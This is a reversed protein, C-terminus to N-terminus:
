KNDNYRDKYILKISEFDNLVSLNLSIIENEQTFEIVDNTTLSIAEMVSFRIPINVQLNHMPIAKFYSTGFHGSTNVFQILSYSDDEGTSFTVEVMPSLDKGFCKVKSLSRIVDQIFFLTNDYGEKYYVTGPLWPIFFAKGLGFKHETIGPYNTVTDYYCREPPGIWHPPILSLIKKTDEEYTAYQYNDGTMVLKTRELSPFIKYEEDTTKKFMSSVMEDSVYDISKIGLIDGFINKTENQNEDYKGSEGVIILNGGNKTFKKLNIVATTQLKFIQPVIITDYKDLKHNVIESDLAQDFQVHSETLARVWGREEYVVGWVKSFLLLVKAESKLNLYDTAHNKHFTFVEKVPNFGTQDEHNDLRGILYYDLGGRNALSQYLRLRHEAASVSIHRYFFGVFDVDSNSVNIKNEIGKVLRNNSSASYQFFPLERKYETNSENKSFDFKDVAIEPNLSKVYDAMRQNEKEVIQEKFLLYKRYVQDNMSLNTPLDFSFEKKFRKQCNKCHCIGFKNYSYDKENFGGMNFFIGDIKLCSVIEKVITYVYDQQYGGNICAHVDGNYNVIKNDKTRYAWDPHKEYVPKRIKSFDVRAIIKIDKKHCTEIIKNLSDGHLYHSEYHDELNTQYSAIIGGVNIMAISANFDILQQVYEDANIDEMDIQRLNTQIDRWSYSEWWHGENKM